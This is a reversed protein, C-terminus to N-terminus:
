QATIRMVLYLNWINVREMVIKAKKGVVSILNGVQMRLGQGVKCSLTQQLTLQANEPHKAGDDIHLSYLTRM